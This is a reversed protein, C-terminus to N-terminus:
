THFLQLTFPELEGRFFEGEEGGIQSVVSFHRKNAFYLTICFHKLLKGFYGAASVDIFTCLFYRVITCQSQALQTVTYFYLFYLLTYFLIFLVVFLIFLIVFFYLVPRDVSHQSHSHEAFTPSYISRIGWRGESQFVSISITFFVLLVFKDSPVMIHHLTRYCPTSHYPKTHCPTSHCLKTQCQITNYPQPMTNHADHQANHQTSNNTASHQTCGWTSTTRTLFNAAPSYNGGSEVINFM